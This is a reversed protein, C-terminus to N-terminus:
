AWQRITNPMFCHQLRDTQRDIENAPQICPKGVDFRWQPPLSIAESCLVKYNQSVIIRMLVHRIRTNYVHNTYVLVTCM